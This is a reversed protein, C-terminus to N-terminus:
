AFLDVRGASSRPRARPAASLPASESDTEESAFSPARGAFDRPDRSRPDDALAIDIAVADFGSEELAAGFSRLDHQLASVVDARSARVEVQLAGDKMRFALDLRGLEAPDLQITLQQVGPRIANRVQALIAEVRVPASVPAHQSKDAAHTAIEGRAPATPAVHSAADVHDAGRAPAAEFRRLRHAIEHDIERIPTPPAATTASAARAPNASEPALEAAEARAARSEADARRSTARAPREFSVRHAADAAAHTAAAPARVPEQAATTTAPVRAADPAAVAREIAPKPSNPTAAATVRVASAAANADTATPATPATRTPPAVDRADNAVRASKADHTRSPADAAPANPTSDRSVVSDNARAARADRTPRVVTSEVVIPAPEPPAKATPAAPTAGADPNSNTPASSHTADGLAPKAASAAIQADANTGSDPAGATAPTAALLDQISRAPDDHVPAAPPEVAPTKSDADQASTAPNAPDAPDAPDTPDAPDVPDPSKETADGDRETETAPEARELIETVVDDFSGEDNPEAGSVSSSNKAAARGTPASSAVRDSVPAIRTQLVVAAFPMRRATPAVPM